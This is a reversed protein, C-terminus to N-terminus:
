DTSRSADYMAEKEQPRHLTHWFYGSEELRAVAERLRRRVEWVSLGTQRAIDGAPRKEIYREVLLWREFPTLVQFMPSCDFGWIWGAGLFPDVEEGPRYPSPDPAQFWVELEPDFTRPIIPDMWKKIYDVFRRQFLVFLYLDWDSKEPIYDICCEIFCLDIEALMDELDALRTAERIWNLVEDVIPQEPLNRGYLVLNRARRQNKGRLFRHAFRRLSKGTLQHPALTDTFIRRYLNLFPAYQQRVQLLAEWDGAQFRLVAEEAKTLRDKNRRRAM